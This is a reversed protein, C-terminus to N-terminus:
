VMEFEICNVNAKVFEYCKDTLHIGRFKYVDDKSPIAIVYDIQTSTGNTFHITALRIKM